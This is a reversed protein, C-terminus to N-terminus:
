SKPFLVELINNKTGKDYFNEKLKGLRRETEKVESELDSIEKEAADGSKELDLMKKKEGELKEELVYQMESIKNMENTTRNKYVLTCHYFFFFTLAVGMALCLIMVFM